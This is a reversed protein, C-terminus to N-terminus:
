SRSYLAYLSYPFGYWLGLPYTAIFYGMLILWVVALADIIMRIPRTRSRKSLHNYEMVGLVGFFHFFFLFPIGSKQLLVVVILAM